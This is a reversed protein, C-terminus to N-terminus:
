GDWRDDEVVGGNCLVLGEVVGEGDEVDVNGAQDELAEEGGVGGLDVALLGDGLLLGREDVGSKFSVRFDVFHTGEM